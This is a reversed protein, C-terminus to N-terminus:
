DGAAAIQHMTSYWMPYVVAHTGTPLWDPNCRQVRVGEQILKCLEKREITLLLGCNIVIECAITFRRCQVSM